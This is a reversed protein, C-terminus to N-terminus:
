KPKPAEASKSLTIWLHHTQGITPAPATVMRRRSTRAIGVLRFTGSVTSGKGTLRLKAAKSKASAVVKQAMIGAPLGEASIEIDENFGRQREIAVPIEISQGPKLAYRDTKTTLQFDPQVSALRLRYVYRSGGHRHFDSVELRYMTDARVTMTLSPDIDLKRSKAEKVLKGKVDTLRLVPDLPSDCAQADIRIALNDGKKAAFEYIDSEARSGIRGSITVPLVVHQPKERSNSKSELVTPHPEIRVRTPNALKDHFAIAFDSHTGPVVKLNEIDTINWGIARIDVPKTRQIALPWPHDAFGGTTVTLRYVFTAAGAFRISSTPTEPFAFTRVLYLGEARATFIVQPDMGHFDDNQALVFGKPSVIQLIGDMPSKLTRNAEMAAVLTQGKGLMVGFVDVDGASLLRGNITVNGKLLQPKKPDNNPERENIEPLTGILFPRLESAGHDDYVRILRAGPIADDATKVTLVGRKKSAEIDIGPRDSWVRVPWTSFTGSATVQVTTGRQAGAPYIYNLTPPAARVSTASVLWALVCLYTAIRM